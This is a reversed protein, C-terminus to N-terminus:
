ARARQRRGCCSRRALSTAPCATLCRRPSPLAACTPMDKVGRAAHMDTRSGPVVCARSRPLQAKPVAGLGYARMGAPRQWALSTSGVRVKAAGFIGDVKHPFSNNKNLPVSVLNRKADVVAKRVAQVVEGASDCGVGVTGNEDGVVVQAACPM